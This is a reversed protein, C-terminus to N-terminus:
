QHPYWRISRRGDAAPDPRKDNLKASFPGASLTSVAQEEDRTAACRAAPYMARPTDEAPIAAPTPKSSLGEGVAMNWFTRLTCVAHQACTRRAFM